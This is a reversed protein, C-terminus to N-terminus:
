EPHRTILEHGEASRTSTDARFNALAMSTEMPSEHPAGASLLEGAGPVVELPIEHEAFRAREIAHEMANSEVLRVVSWGVRALMISRKIAQEFAAPERYLVHEVLDLIGQPIGPDHIVADAAALTYTALPPLHRPDGDGASVLWVSGYALKPMGMESSLDTTSM